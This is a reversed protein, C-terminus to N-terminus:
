KSNLEIQKKILASMLTTANNTRTIHGYMEQCFCDALILKYKVGLWYFVIFAENGFDISKAQEAFYPICNSLIEVAQAHDKIM